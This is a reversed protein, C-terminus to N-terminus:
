PTGMPQGPSQGGTPPQTGQGAPAGPAGAPQSDYDTDAYPDDSGIKSDMGLMKERQMLEKVQHGLLVQASQSKLKALNIEIDAQIKALEIREDHELEMKKMSSEIAKQEIIQSKQNLHQSLQQIMQQMQQMQAQAKAPIPEQKGDDALGPPLTKKIRDSIEQAYTWDQAKVFIDGAVDMLKPYVQAISIMGAAAEQRRTAFSPGTDITADYRGQDLTYIVKKGSDDTTPQNIQVIKQEGDSGILRQSMATDYVKPILEALIRGGHRMSRKLNDVFHFTSTQIQAGRNQIAVGSTENGQAGMGADYIGTTSKLDDGAMQAAQSIAQVAPEFSQRQPPPLPEGASTVLKYTLYPHNRKNATKWQAEYGEFQGEAGIFPARPALAITETEASKWYNYMRQPDKAHRIVSELIRKGNIYRETGYVPVIPIYSGLWDTKELIEVGNLKLWKVVPVNTKRTKEIRVNMGPVKAAAAMHAKLDKARVTVGDSLLHITEEHTEKFYYEAVRCSDERVWAAQDNGISTWDADPRALESHPFKAKYDDKSLDDVIFAWNADSGDPEQSYPDFYVSLPNRIRKVQIEQNFSLPDAYATLYRWYGLGGSVASEFATDYAAEANSDYEIHRIMGQIVEATEESGINDLPNVKIAPRNMRQDNAVQNVFTPLRNITLCPRGDQRRAEEDELHWQKGAIFELDELALKRIETEAEEALILRAKAEVRIDDDKSDDTGNGSESDSASPTSEGDDQDDGVQSTDDSRSAV